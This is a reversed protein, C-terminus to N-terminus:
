RAIVLELVIKSCVWAGAGAALVGVVVFAVDVPSVSGSPVRRLLAATGALTCVTALVLVTALASPFVRDFLGPAAGASFLWRTVIIFAAIMGLGLLILARGFRDPHNLSPTSM